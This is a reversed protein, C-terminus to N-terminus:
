RVAADRLKLYSQYEALTVKGDKDADAEDFAVVFVNFVQRNAQAEQLSIKGSGSQNIKRFNELKGGSAVFETESVFGDGNSDYMAFAESIIQKTAEVRSVSGDGDKDARQFRQEPSVAPTTAACSALLCAPLLTKILKMDRITYHLPLPGDIVIRHRM